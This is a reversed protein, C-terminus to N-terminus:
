KITDLPWQSTHTPEDVMRRRKADAMMAVCDSALEVDSCRKVMSRKRRKFEDALEQKTM